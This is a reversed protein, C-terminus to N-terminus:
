LNLLSVKPLPSDFALHKVYVFYDDRIWLYPRPPVAAFTEVIM